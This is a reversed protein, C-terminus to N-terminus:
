GKPRLLEKFAPSAHLPMLLPDRHLWVGYSFGKSFAQRLQEVATDLNREAAAIAALWYAQDSQLSRPKLELAEIVETRHRALTTDGRRAALVGTWGLCPLGEYSVGCKPELVAVAEPLRGAQFLALVQEYRLRNRESVPQAAYWAAAQDAFQRGRTSDGHAAFEAAVDSLLGGYSGGWPDPPLNRAEEVLKALEDNRGLAALTAAEARALWFSRPYQERGQRIASLEAAHDGLMHHAGVVLFWYHPIGSMELSRPKVLTFTRLAERPRNLMLAEYGFQQRGQGDGLTASDGAFVRYAADRDGDLWARLLTLEGRDIQSLQSGSTEVPRLVSDAAANRGQNTLTFGVYIRAQWYTSDITVAQQFLREAESLDLWFAKRGRVYLRFAELSPPASSQEANTGWVPDL